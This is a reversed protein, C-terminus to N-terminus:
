GTEVSAKVAHLTEHAIWQIFIPGVILDSVMRGVLPWRMVLDHVIRVKTGEPLPELQWEVVMGSTLGRLHRFVIRREAPFREQVATWRAPWGRVRGAMEFLLHRGQRDLIRCWRYAPHLHPWREVDAAVAFIAEPTARMLAEHVTHM